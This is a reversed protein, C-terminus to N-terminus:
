SKGGVPVIVRKKLLLKYGVDDLHEMTLNEKAWDKEPDPDVYRQGDLGSRYKIRRLPQHPQAKQKELDNKPM